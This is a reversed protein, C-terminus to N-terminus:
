HSLWLSPDMLKKEQWIEFHLETKSEDPDTHILGISQKTKVKDGAKVSVTELNSYVSLFDGHRIIVVKNLNPISMVASVSGGFVSRVTSGSNTLINVGNNRTKIGKLIPHEHEGFTQSIIGKETPWPLRGKNASFSSSLEKEEPTMTYSTNQVPKASSSNTTTPKPTSKKIEQAILSEIAGQLKNLAQEKDKLQKRLEKEKQKLQAVTQSKEDKERTLKEKEKEKADVLSLKENKQDTLEGIKSNIKQQTGMILRIQTKRYESFQQFYKLRQYAQNFDKAAFIFMLRNYANSNKYAQYVMSAYEKKLSELEKKLRDLSFQNNTIEGHINDVENNITSILKERKQIQTSLIVVKNLSQQRNKKTESLLKNTYSIENELDKKSKELKSRQNSQASGNLFLVMSLLLTM